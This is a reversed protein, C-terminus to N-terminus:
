ENLDGNLFVTKEDMQHLKLNRLTAIALVMRIFNIRTMPSYTDFYYLGKTQRYGKIVLRTKYKEIQDM